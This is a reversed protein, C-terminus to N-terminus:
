YRFLANMSTGEIPMDEKEVIFVDGDKLWTQIAALNFLSAQKAKQSEDIILSRNIKDYLGFRDKSKRIFLSEIRGDIAAPIIDNLDFSTKGVPSQEKLRKTATKRREQFYDDVVELAMEHLLKPSTEEHNGSIHDSFLNSYATIKKYIPYYHDVCALVLPVDDEKIMSMLSQDVARLFKETEMAKDDKGSGQGHYIVSAEGGQGTRFQLSKEQFKYGVVEELKEPVIGELIIEALSYRTAEYFKINNLSLSLLYFMSDYTFIPLIPLLYFHDAVYTLEPQDIPLTYVRMKNNNLLIVLCDSQNRWFHTDTLLDTAPQLYDEIEPDNLQYDKLRSKVDKLCNKLIIQGKKNDVDQGARDTPVYMSVCHQDHINALKKFENGSILYENEM